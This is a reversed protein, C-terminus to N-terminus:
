LFRHVDDDVCVCFFFAFRVIQRWVHSQEHMRAFGRGRPLGVVCCRDRAAIDARQWCGGANHARTHTLSFLCLCVRSVVCVRVAADESPALLCGPPILVTIPNLCGQNLPINRKVLCRLCYIIASYTVARPANTNGFVQPGAGLTFVWALLCSLLVCVANVQEPSTLCLQAGASATRQQQKRKRQKARQRATLLM